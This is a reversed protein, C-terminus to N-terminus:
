EVIIEIAKSSKSITINLDSILYGLERIALESSYFLKRSIMVCTDKDIPPTKGLLGFVLEMGFGMLPLLTKPLQIVPATGGTANAIEAFYKKFSVNHGGLIYRKGSIGNDVCLMLGKVLDDVSTLCVGGPPYIKMKGNSINKFNNFQGEKMGHFGVVNGPCAVVADLGKEVEKLVEQEGMYKTYAYHENYRNFQFSEDAIEGSEPTGVAAVSSVHVLKTNGTERVARAILGAADVNIQMRLANDKKLSSGCAALNFVASCGEMARCIDKGNSIDGIVDNYNLGDLYKISSSSRHFVSVDHGAGDLYRVLNSGVFGTGGIILINM